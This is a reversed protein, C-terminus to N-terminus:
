CKRSAHCLNPCLPTRHDNPLWSLLRERGTVDEPQRSAKVFNIWLEYVQVNRLDNERIGM